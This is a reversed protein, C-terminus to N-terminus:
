NSALLFDEMKSGEIDELLVWFFTGSREGLHLRTRLFLLDVIVIGDSGVVRDDDPGQAERCSEGASGIIEEVENVEM